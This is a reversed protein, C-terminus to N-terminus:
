AGRRVEGHAAPRASLWERHHQEVWPRRNAVWWDRNHWAHGEDWDGYVVAPRGVYAPYAPGYAPAYSAGYGYGYGPGPVTEFCGQLTLAGCFLTATLALGAILKRPRMFRRRNIYLLMFLAPPVSALNGGKKLAESGGGGHQYAHLSWFTTMPSPGNGRYGDTRALTTSKGPRPPSLDRNSAHRALFASFQARLSM